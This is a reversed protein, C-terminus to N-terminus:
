EIGLDRPLSKEREITLEAGALPSNRLFDVLSDEARTMRDYAEYPLVVVTKHGHRTVIQPGEALTRDVLESFRSKADQLQWINGMDEEM